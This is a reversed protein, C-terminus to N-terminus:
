QYYRSDNIDNAVPHYSIHFRVFYQLETGSPRPFHLVQSNGCHKDLCTLHNAVVINSDLTHGYTVMATLSSVTADKGGAAVAAIAVGNTTLFSPIDSLCLCIYTKHHRCSLIQYSRWHCDIM